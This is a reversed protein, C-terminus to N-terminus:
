MLDEDALEGDPPEDRAVTAGPTPWTDLFKSLNTQLAFVSAPPLPSRSTTQWWRSATPEAVLNTSFGSAPQDAAAPRDPLRVSNDPYHHQLLLDQPVDGRVPQALAMSVLLMLIVLAPLIFRFCAAIGTNEVDHWAM